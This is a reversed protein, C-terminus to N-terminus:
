MSEGAPKNRVCSEGHLTSSDYYDIQVAREHWPVQQMTQGPHAQSHNWTMITRRRRMDDYSEEEVGSPPQLQALGRGITPGWSQKKVGVKRNSWNAGSFERVEHRQLVIDPFPVDGSAGLWKPWQQGCYLIHIRKLNPLNYAFTELAICFSMIYQPTERLWRLAGCICVRLYLEKVGPKVNRLIDAEIFNECTSQAGGNLNILLALQQIKAHNRELM